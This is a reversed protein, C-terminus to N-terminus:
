SLSSRGQLLLKVLLAVLFRVFRDLIPRNQYYYFLTLNQSDIKIESEFSIIKSHIFNIGGLRCVTFDKKVYWKFRM